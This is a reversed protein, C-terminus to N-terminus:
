NWFPKGSKFGLQRKFFSEVADGTIAGLGLLFGLWLSVQTYDIISINSFIDFSYLLRQIYFVILGGFSAFIFGRLSKNEGFIRKGRFTKNFDLPRPKKSLFPIRRSFPPIINAIYVPLFFYLAELIM